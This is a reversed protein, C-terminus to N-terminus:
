KQIGDYLQDQLFFLWHVLQHSESSLYARRYSIYRGQIAEACPDPSDYSELEAQILGPVQQNWFSSDEPKLNHDESSDELILHDESESLFRFHSYTRM